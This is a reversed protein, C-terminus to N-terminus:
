FVATGKRVSLVCLLATRCGLQHAKSGARPGHQLFTATSCFNLCCSDGWTFHLIETSLTGNPLKIVMLNWTWPTIFLPGSISTLDPHWCCLQSVTLLLWHFKLFWVPSKFLSYLKCHRWFGLPSKLFTSLYIIIYRMGWTKCEEMSGKILPVENRQVHFLWCNM